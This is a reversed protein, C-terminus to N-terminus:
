MQQMNHGPRYVLRLMRKERLSASLASTVHTKQLSTDNHEDEEADKRSYIDIAKEILGIRTTSVFVM